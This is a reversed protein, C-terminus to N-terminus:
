NKERNDYENEESEFSEDMHALRDSEDFPNATKYNDYNKYSM